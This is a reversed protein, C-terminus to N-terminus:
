HTCACYWYCLLIIAVTGCVIHQHWVIGLHQILPTLLNCTLPYSNKGSLLTPFSRAVLLLPTALFLLLLLLLTVDTALFLLLALLLLYFCYCTVTTAVTAASCSLYCCCHSLSMPLPDTIQKSSIWWTVAIVRLSLHSAGTRWNIYAHMGHTTM